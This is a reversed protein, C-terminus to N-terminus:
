SGFELGSQDEQNYIIKKAISQLVAIEDTGTNKTKLYEELLEEPPLNAIGEDQALRLRTGALPKRIIQYELADQYYKRSLFFDILVEWERPYILTLRAVTNELEEHDPLQNQIYEQLANADPM